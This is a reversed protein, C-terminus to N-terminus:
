MPRTITTLNKISKRRRKKRRKIINRRRRKRRKRKRKRRRKRKEMMTGEWSPWNRRRWTIDRGEGDGSLWSKKFTQKWECRTRKLSDLLLSTTRRLSNRSPTLKVGM